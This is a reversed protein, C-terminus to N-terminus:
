IVEIKVVDKVWFKKPLNEFIVRREKTLVGKKMDEWEVTQPHGDAGIITYEHKEPQEVGSLNIICALSAEEGISCKEFIEEISIKKGNIEITDGVEEVSQYIASVIGVSLLFVAIVISIKEGREMQFLIM